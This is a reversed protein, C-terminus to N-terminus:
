PHLLTKIGSFWGQAEPGDGDFLRDPHGLKLRTASVPQPVLNQGSKAVAQLPVVSM